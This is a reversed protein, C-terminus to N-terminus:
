IAINHVFYSKRGRERDMDKDLHIFTHRDVAHKPMKNIYQSPNHGFTCYLIYVLVTVGFIVVDTKSM